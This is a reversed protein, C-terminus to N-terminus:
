YQYSLTLGYSRPQGFIVAGFNHYAQYEADTLNEGWAAISLEGDGVQIDSLTLRARVLDYSPRPDGFTGPGGNSYESGRYSYGVLATLVGIPLRPLAYEVGVSYKWKPANPLSTGVVPLMSIPNVVVGSQEAKLYSADARLTLRETLRLTTDVEVGDFTAQGANVTFIGFTAPDIFDLQIDDYDQHFIAVNVQGRRDWFQSKLGIEYSTLVEPDFPSLSPNYINYGGTRYGRAYRIYAHLNENWRYDLTLAPDFSTYDAQSNVATLPLGAIERSAQRDDWSYRAGFILNLRGDFVPPKWDLNVFVAKSANEVDGLTLPAFDALTPPATMFFPNALGATEQHGKEEFYYLGVTYNLAWSPAEGNLLLEQSFQSQDMDNFVASYLNFGEATDHLQTASVERHSTVSRLSLHEGLDWAITLAHGDAEFDDQLPLDVPRYSQSLRGPFIPFAFPFLPYDYQHQHYASVGDQESHDYAYDVTLNEAAQWRLAARYAEQDKEGFDGGTGTNEVWGDISSNLYIFRASLDGLAPLDLTTSSRLYNFNGADVTQRLGFTGAPPETVFKVAGGITNRGYLTGQPGRLVEVRAVGAVDTTLGVSRGLYVDDLYIGVGPDRAIQVSDVQGVGRMFVVLSSGGNPYPTIALSPVAESLDGLDTFGIRELDSAGLATIAMPVEQLRQERRQATVVIDSVVSTDDALASGDQAMALAPWSAMASVLLLGRGYGGFARM